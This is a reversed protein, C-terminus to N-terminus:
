KAKKRNQKAQKKQPWSLSALTMMLLLDPEDDDDDDDRGCDSIESSSLLRLFHIYLFLFTFPLFMELSTSFRLLAYQGSRM